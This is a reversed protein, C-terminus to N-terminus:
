YFRFPIVYIGNSNFDACIFLSLISFNCELKNQKTPLMFVQQQTLIAVVASTIQISRFISTKPRSCHQRLLTRKFCSWCIRWVTESLKLIGLCVIIFHLFFLPKVSINFNSSLILFFARFYPARQSYIMIGWYVEQFHMLTM